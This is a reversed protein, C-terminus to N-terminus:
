AGMRREFDREEAMEAMTREYDLVEKLVRPDTPVPVVRQGHCRVCTMNYVGSFYDDQFEPGLDDMEERSIGHSDISPNVYEGRGECVSCVEFKVDVIEETYQMVAKFDGAMATWWQGVAAAMDRSDV